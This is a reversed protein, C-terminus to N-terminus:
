TAGRHTDAPQEVHHRDLLAVRAVRTLRAVDSALATRAGIEAADGDDDVLVDVDGVQVLDHPGHARARIGLAAQVDDMARPASREIRRNLGALLTKVAAEDDVRRTWPLPLLLKRGRDSRRGFLLPNRALPPAPDQLATALCTHEAVVDYPRIM